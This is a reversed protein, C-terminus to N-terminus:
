PNELQPITIPMVAAHADLLDSFDPMQLLFGLCAWGAIRRQGGLLFYRRAGGDGRCSGSVPGNGGWCISKILLYRASGAGSVALTSHERTLKDLDTHSRAPHLASSKRQRPITPGSNEGNTKGLRRLGFLRGNLVLCGGFISWLWQRTGVRHLGCAPSCAPQAYRESLPINRVGARTKSEHVRLSNDVFDVAEWRLALAEGRSRMGTELILEVLVRIYPAAVRLIREEEDFTVIHPPRLDRQKLFDVQVFLDSGKQTSLFRPVLYSHRHNGGHRVPNKSAGMAQNNRSFAWVFARNAAIFKAVCISTLRLRLPILYKSLGNLSM